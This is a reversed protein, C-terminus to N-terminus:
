KQASNHASPNQSISTKEESGIDTKVASKTANLEEYQHTTTIPISLNFENDFYASDNMNKEVERPTGIIAKL